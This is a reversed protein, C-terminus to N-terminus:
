APIHRGQAEYSCPSTLNLTEGVLLTAVHHIPQYGQALLEDTPFVAEDPKDSLGLALAGQQRLFSLSQVVEYNITIRDQMLTKLNSGQTETGMRETTTLYEERRFSKFPTPDGARCNEVVERHIARLDSSTTHAIRSEIIDLFDSFTSVKRKAFDEQLDALRYLGAAILLASYVLYDQNDETFFHYTAQNMERYVDSFIEEGSVDGLVNHAVRIAAQSRATDISADNRGRPGLITKDLDVVVACSNDLRMGRRCVLDLFEPLSAWRNSHCIEGEVTLAPEEALNDKGIFAWGSWGGEHQLNAFAQGDLQSDGIYLIQTLATGPHELSQAAKLINAMVRAYARDSKRPPWDSNLGLGGALASLGPLRPDAPELQRYVVFDELFDAVKATGEVKM